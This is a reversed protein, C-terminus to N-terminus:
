GCITEDKDLVQLWEDVFKGLIKQSPKLTTATDGAGVDSDTDEGGVSEEM